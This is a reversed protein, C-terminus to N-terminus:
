ATGNSSTWCISLMWRMANRSLRCACPPDPHHHAERRGPQEHHRATPRESRGLERCGTAPAPRRGKRPAERKGQSRRNAPRGSVGAAASQRRPNHGAPRQPQKPELPTTVAPARKGRVQEIEAAGLVVSVVQPAIGAKKTLAQVENAQEHTAVTM